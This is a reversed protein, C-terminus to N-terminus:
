SSWSSGPQAPPARSAQPMMVATQQPLPLAIQTNFGCIALLTYRLLEKFARYRWADGSSSGSLMPEDRGTCLEFDLTPKSSVVFESGILM